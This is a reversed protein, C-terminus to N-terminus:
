TKRVKLSISLQKLGSVSVLNFGLLNGGPVALTDWVPPEAANKNAATLSPKTGAGVMSTNSGFGAYTDSYIDVVADGVEPSVLKWSLVTCAFPVELYGKLGPVLPTGGADIIFEIGALAVTRFNEDVESNLLPSGKTDRYIMSM